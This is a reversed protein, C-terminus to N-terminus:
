QLGLCKRAASLRKDVTPGRSSGEYCEVIQRCADARRNCERRREECEKKARSWASSDTTEPVPTVVPSVPGGSVKVAGAQVVGALAGQAMAVLMDEVFAGWIQGGLRKAEQDYLASAKEYYEAIDRYCKIAAVRDGGEDQRKALRTSVVGTAYLGAMTTSVPDTRAGLGILYDVVQTWDNYAAVHLATWNPDTSRANLDAHSQVLTRVCNVDGARAAFMLATWGHASQANVDAHNQVLYQMVDNHKEAAANILPTIGEETKANVDAGTAVLTKVAPLHGRYSSVSLASTGEQDKANVDAKHEILVSIVGVYGNGAALILPTGASDDRADVDAGHDLLLRAVTADDNAAAAHLPVQGRREEEMETDAGAALLATLIEEQGTSAACYLPTQAFSPRSPWSYQRENVHRGRTILAIAKATDKQEIATHLPTPDNM